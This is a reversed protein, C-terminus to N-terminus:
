WAAAACGCTSAGLDADVASECVISNRVGLEARLAAHADVRSLHTPRRSPGVVSVVVGHPWGAALRLALNPSPASLVLVAGGEPMSQVGTQVRVAVHRPSACCTACCTDARTLM